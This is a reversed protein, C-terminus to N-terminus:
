RPRAQAQEGVLLADPEEAGVALVGKVGVGGVYQGAALELAKRNARAQGHKGAIRQGSEIGLLGVLVGAFHREEAAAVQATRRDGAAHIRVEFIRELQGLPHLELNANSMNLM